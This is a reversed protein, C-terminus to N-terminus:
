RIINLGLLADARHLTTWDESSTGFEGRDVNCVELYRESILRDRACRNRSCQILTANIYRAVRFRDPQV